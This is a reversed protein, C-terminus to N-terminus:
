NISSICNDLKVYSEFLSAIMENQAAVNQILRKIYKAKVEGKELEKDIFYSLLDNNCQIYSSPNEGKCFASIKEQLNTFTSLAHAPVATSQSNAVFVKEKLM